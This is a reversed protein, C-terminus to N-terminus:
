WGINVGVYENIDTTMDVIPKYIEQIKFGNEELIKKVQPYLHKDFFVNYYGKNVARQIYSDLEEIQKDILEDLPTVRKNKDAIRRAQEATIM